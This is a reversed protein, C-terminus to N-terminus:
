FGLSIIGGIEFNNNKREFNFHGIEEDNIVLKLTSYDYGVYTDLKIVPLSLIRYGILPSVSLYEASFSDTELKPFYRFKINLIIRNTKLDLASYFYPYLVTHTFSDQKLTEDELKAKAKIDFDLINFGLGWKIFNLFPFSYYFDLNIEKTNQDLIIKADQGNIQINGFQFNLTDSLSATLNYETYKLEVAPLLFIDVKGYIFPVTKKDFEIKTLEVNESDSVPHKNYCLNVEQKIKKLGGGVSVELIKGFAVNALILLFIGLKKM